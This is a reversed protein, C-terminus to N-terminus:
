ELFHRLSQYRKKTFMTYQARFAFNSEVM